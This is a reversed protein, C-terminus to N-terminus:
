NLNINVKYHIDRNCMTCIHTIANLHLGSVSCFTFYSESCGHWSYNKNESYSGM